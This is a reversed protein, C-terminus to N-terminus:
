QSRRRLRSLWGAKQRAPSLALPDVRLGLGCGPANCAMESGLRGPERTREQSCAPYRIALGDDRGVATVMIPGYELGALEARYVAGLVDGCVKWPLWPHVTVSSLGNSLALM